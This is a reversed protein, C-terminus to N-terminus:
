NTQEVVPQFEHESERVSVVSRVFYHARLQKIAEKEDAAEIFAFRRRESPAGRYVITYAKM